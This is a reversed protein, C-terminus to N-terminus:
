ISATASILLQKLFAELLNFWEEKAKVFGEIVNWDDAGFGCRV